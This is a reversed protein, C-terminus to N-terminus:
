ALVNNSIKTSKRYLQKEIFSNALNAPISDENNGLMKRSSDYIHKYGTSNLQNTSIPSQGVNRIPSLSKKIRDFHDKYSQDGV